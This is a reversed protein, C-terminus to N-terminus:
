RNDTDLPVIGLAAGGEDIEEYFEDAGQSLIPTNAIEAAEGETLKRDFKKELRAIEERNM